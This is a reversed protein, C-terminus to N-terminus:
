SEDWSSFLDEETKYKSGTGARAEDLANLTEANPIRVAFPLGKHHLIQKYFLRIAESNSLGLKDLIHEVNEKLEPDVRVNVTSTKTNTNQAM